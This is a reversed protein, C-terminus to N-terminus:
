SAPVCYGLFPMLIKNARRLRHSRHQNTKRTRGHRFTELDTEYKMMMQWAPWCANLEVVFESQWYALYGVM